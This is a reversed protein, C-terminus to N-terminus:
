RDHRADERRDRLRRRLGTARDPRRSHRWALVKFPTGDIVPAPIALKWFREHWWFYPDYISCYRPRLDRFGTSWREAVTALGLTFVLAVVGAVAYAIAGVNAHQRIAIWLIAMLGALQLWRVLLLLGISVANHRNKASLRRRFEEGRALHDFRADRAM